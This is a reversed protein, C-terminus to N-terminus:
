DSHVDSSSVATGALVHQQQGGPMLRKVGVHARLEFVCLLSGGEEGGLFPSRMWVPARKKIPERM